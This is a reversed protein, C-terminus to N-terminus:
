RQVGLATLYVRVYRAMARSDNRPLMAPLDGEGLTGGVLVSILMAGAAAPDADPAVLGTARLRNSYARLEAAARAMGEHVTCSLEPNADGELLCKRFFARSEKLWSAQASCWAVLEREPDVPTRPLVGTPGVDVSSRVAEELLAAKSGFIRFLTVENVGAQEAIRRTTAGAVGHETFVAAAARLIRERSDGSGPRREAPATLRGM